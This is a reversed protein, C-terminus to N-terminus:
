WGAAAPAPLPPAPPIAEAQCWAIPFRLRHCSRSSCGARRARIARNAARVPPGTRRSRPLLPGSEAARRGSERTRDAVRRELEENSGRVEDLVRLRSVAAALLNAYSRLFTIDSENFDRSERCDVQLIGFPPSSDAGIIPVNAIARVGNDRLFAAYDFRDEREIDPSVVPEETRIAHAESSGDEIKLTVRGVVGPKWGVGARVLLTEGDRQLEVVKAMETGLAERVLRCAETLIEDLDNSRLALQGFRAPTTQQRLLEQHEYKDRGDM